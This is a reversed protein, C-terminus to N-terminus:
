AAVVRLCWGAAVRTPGAVWFGRRGHRVVGAGPVHNCNQNCNMVTRAMGPLYADWTVSTGPGVRVTSM